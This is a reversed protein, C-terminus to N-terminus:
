FDIVMGASFGTVNAGVTAALVEGHGGNGSAINRAAGSDNEAKAYSVYARTTKSFLHDLGIAWLTGGDEAATGDVDDADYWQFKVRNNAFKFSAVVGLVDQDVGAIGGLDSMTEWFLGVDFNGFDYRGALRLDTPNDSTTSGKEEYALGAFLPGSTWLLNASTSKQVSATAEGTTTTTVSGPAATVTSTTGSADNSTHQVTVTAGGFSPSEYRIMNSVRADFAGAGIINRADGIEENFRDLKRNLDKAPTDHRGVKVAGWDGAFGVFSNRLQGGLGLQAGASGGTGDDLQTVGTELQYISKLGGGLDETGRVGIRTSNSSVRGDETTDNDFRDLSMHFHGYLTPAAHVAVTPGAVLAAGVAAMLLKKKM